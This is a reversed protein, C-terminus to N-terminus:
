ITTCSREHSAFAQNYLIFNFQEEVYTMFSSWLEMMRKNEYLLTAMDVNKAPGKLRMCGLVFEKRGVKGDNGLDLLKFLGKAEDPDLGLYHLYARVRHDELHKEFEELDLYGSNDVDAEIFIKLMSQAYSNTENMEDAIIVDQDEQASQMASGVFIGTVINLVAFVVFSVFLGLTISYSWSIRYLEVWAERWSLGGSICQFLTMMSMHLSGFMDVMITLDETPHELRHETVTQVLHVSFMYMLLLILCMAWLFPKLSKFTSSVMMRLEYFFRVVRLIRVVRFLRTIRLIRIIAFRSGGPRPENNVQEIITDVVGVCVIVIDFINWKWDRCVVYEVRTAWARFLIEAAFWSTFIINLPKSWERQTYALRHASDDVFFGLLAANLCIIVACFCDFYSGLVFKQGWTKQRSREAEVRRCLAQSEAWPLYDKFNQLADSFRVWGKSKALAELWGEDVVSKTRNFNSVTKARWWPPGATHSSHVGSPTGTHDGQKVALTGTHDSQPLVLTNSGPLSSFAVGVTDAAGITESAAQFRVERHGIAAHHLEAAHESCKSAAQPVPLQVPRQQFGGVLPARSLVRSEFCDLQKQLKDAHAILLGNLTAVISNKSEQSSDIDVVYEEESSRNEM